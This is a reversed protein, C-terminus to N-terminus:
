HTHCSTAGNWAPFGADIALPRAEREDPHEVAARQLVEPFVVKTDHVANGLSLAALLPSASIGDNGQLLNM